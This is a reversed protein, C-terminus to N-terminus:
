AKNCEYDAIGMVKKIMPILAKQYNGSPKYGKVIYQPLGIDRLAASVNMIKAEYSGRTRCDLKPLTDRCLQAKNISAYGSQAKFLTVYAECIVQVEQDTWAKGKRCM